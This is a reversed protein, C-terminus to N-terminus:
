VHCGLADRQLQLASSYPGERVMRARRVRSQGLRKLGVDLGFLEERGGVRHRLHQRDYVGHCFIQRPPKVRKITAPDHPLTLTIPYGLAGRASSRPPPCCVSAGTEKLQQTKRRQHPWVLGMVSLSAFSVRVYFVQSSRFLTM